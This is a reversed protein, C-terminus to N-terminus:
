LRRGGRQTRPNISNMIQIGTNKKFFRKSESKKMKQRRM